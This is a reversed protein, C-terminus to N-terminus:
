RDHPEVELGSPGVENVLLEVANVERIAKATRQAGVAIQELTLNRPLKGKLALYRGLWVFADKVHSDTM